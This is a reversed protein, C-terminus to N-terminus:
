HHIKVIDKLQRSFSARLARSSRELRSATDAAARLMDEFVLSEERIKQMGTFANLGDGELQRKLGDEAKEMVESCGKQDEQIGAINDKIMDEYSQDGLEGGVFQELNEVVAKNGRQIAKLRALEEKQARLRRASAASNTGFHVSCEDPRVDYWFSPSPSPSFGESAAPRHDDTLRGPEDGVARLSGNNDATAPFALYGSGWDGDGSQSLIPTAMSVWALIFNLWCKKM